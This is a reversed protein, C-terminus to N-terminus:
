VRVEGRLYSEARDQITGRRLIGDQGRKFRCQHKSRVAKIQSKIFTHVTHGCFTCTFGYPTKTRSTASM